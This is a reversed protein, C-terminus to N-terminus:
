SSAEPATKRKNYMLLYSAWISLEYLIVLPIAMMIMSLPDAPTLLASVIVIAVMAIKRYDKLTQPTLLELYVLIMVVMPFQFAVAFGVYFLILLAVTESMRLTTEVGVPTWALLYPLILPLIGFYALSVGTIALVACGGVLFGVARRETPKLGPFIFALMQYLIFPFSILVGGYVSLKLAVVVSEIPNLAVWKWPMESGPAPSRAPLEALTVPVSVFFGPREALPRTYVPALVTVSELFAEEAQMRALEEETIQHPLLPKAVIRFIQAHFVYCLFCAALL